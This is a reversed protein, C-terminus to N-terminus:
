SLTNIARAVLVALVVISILSQLMMLAKLRRSLILTDTPSFAASTNFALFLYDVYEPMWDPYDTDSLSRQPFLLDDSRYRGMMRQPPGGADIEWYLLSFTVMNALWIVAGDRLLRQAGTKGGELLQTILFVASIIVAATALAVIVLVLVRTYQFAGRYHTINIPILFVAVVVLLLWSPGIRLRDPIVLYAVGVLLLALTAPWRTIGRQPSPPPQDPQQTNQPLATRVM